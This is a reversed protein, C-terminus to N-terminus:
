KILELQHQALCAMYGSRWGTLAPPTRTEIGNQHDMRVWPAISHEIVTGTDGMITNDDREVLVVRVRDGVKFKPTIGKTQM